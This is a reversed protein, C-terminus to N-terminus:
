EGLVRLRGEPRLGPVCEDGGAGRVAVANNLGVFVARGGLDHVAEWCPGRRAAPAGYRLVFVENESVHVPARGPLDVAGGTNRWVQYMDGGCFVLYKASAHDPVRDYPPAFVGDDPDDNSPVDGGPLVVFPELLVPKRIGHGGGRPVRVALVHGRKTLCYFESSGGGGGGGDHCVVDALEADDDDDSDIEHFSWAEDGASVCAVTKEGCLAVATFDDRRPDREFVVKFTIVALWGGSSGVCWGGSNLTPLLFPRELPQSVALVPRRVNDHRHLVFLLCPSPPALASRWAACVGRAALYSSLTILRDAICLLLESPLDAWARAPAM